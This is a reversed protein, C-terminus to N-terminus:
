MKLNSEDELISKMIQLNNENTEDKMLKKVLQKVEEKEKVLLLANLAINRVKPDWDSAFFKFIKFVEEDNIFPYLSQLALYQAEGFEYKAIDLIEKLFKKKSENSLSSLLMSLERVSKQSLQSIIEKALEEDEKIIREFAIALYISNGLEDILKKLCEICNAETYLIITYYCLSAKSIDILPKLEDNKIYLSCIQPTFKIHDKIIMIAEEIKGNKIKEISKWYLSNVNVDELTEKNKWGKKEEKM